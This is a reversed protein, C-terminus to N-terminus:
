SDITDVDSMGIVVPLTLTRFFVSTKDRRVMQEKGTTSDEITLGMCLTPNGLTTDGM